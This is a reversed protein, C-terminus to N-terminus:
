PTYIGRFRQYCKATSNSLVSRGLTSHFAIVFRMTICDGIEFSYKTQNELQIDFSEKSKAGLVLPIERKNWQTGVRLPIQEGNVEDIFAVSDVYITYTSLNELNVANNLGNYKQDTSIISSITLSVSDTVFAQSLDHREPFCFKSMDYTGKIRGCTLLLCCLLVAVAYKM